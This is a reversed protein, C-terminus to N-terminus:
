IVVEEILETIMLTDEKIGFSFNQIDDDYELGLDEPAPTWPTAKNGREVKVQENTPYSVWLYSANKPATATFRKSLPIDRSIFTYNSDLWNYRWYDTGNKTFTLEESAVVPIAELMTSSGTLRKPEPYTALTNGPNNGNGTLAMDIQENCRIILNRGGELEAPYEVIEPTLIVGHPYIKQNFSKIFDPYDLGLSEPSPTYPTAKIGDEAKINRLEIEGMGSLVRLGIAGSAIDFLPSVVRQWENSLAVGEGQLRSSWQWGFMVGVMSENVARVEIQYTAFRYISSTYIFAGTSTKVDVVGEWTHLVDTSKILNRGGELEPPYEIIENKLELEGKNKLKVIKM